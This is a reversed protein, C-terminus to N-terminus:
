YDENKRQDNYKKRRDNVKYPNDDLFEDKKSKKSPKTEKIPKPVPPNGIIPDVGNMDIAYNFVKYVYVWIGNVWKFGEYDGDPILTQKQEPEKSESILHDFVIMGLNTDYNLKARAEKKYELCFRFAPQKPKIEDNPYQFYRGGLVPNANKDFTLVEIWKKNSKENNEDLGILTYYKKNNYTTLIIKYYLAGIWRQATRISDVPNETDDSVDFLPILKLSGDATNMQIAGKQRISSYDKVLQWTFIKFSSDPAYLKSITTVSDFNYYFSYPTKLAKVLGRTFFSDARYRDLAEEAMIMNNAYPIIEAEMKQLNNRNAETLHQTFAITNIVSFLVSLFFKM